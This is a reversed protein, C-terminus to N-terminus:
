SNGDNVVGSFLINIVKGYNKISLTKINDVESKAMSLKNTFKEDLDKKIQEQKLILEDDYKREIQKKELNYSATYDEILRMATINSDSIIKSAKKETELIKAVLINEM